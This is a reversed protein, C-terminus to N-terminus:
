SCGMLAPHVNIHSLPECEFRALRRSPSKVTTMASRRSLGKESYGVIRGSRASGLDGSIEPAEPIDM